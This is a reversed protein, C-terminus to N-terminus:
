ASTFSASDLFINFMCPERWDRGGPLFYKKLMHQKTLEIQYFVQITEVQKELSSFIKSYDLTKTKFHIMIPQSRTFTHVQDEPKSCLVCNLKKFYIKYSDCNSRLVDM